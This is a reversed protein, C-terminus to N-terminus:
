SYSYNESDESVSLLGHRREFEYTFKEFDFPHFDEHPILCARYLSIPNYYFPNIKLFYKKRFSYGKIKQM